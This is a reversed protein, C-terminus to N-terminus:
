VACTRGTNRHVCGLESEVKHHYGAAGTGLEGQDYGIGSRNLSAFGYANPFFLAGESRQLAGIPQGTRTEPHPGGDSEPNRISRSTLVCLESSNLIAFQGTIAESLFRRSLEM